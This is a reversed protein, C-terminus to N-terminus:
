VESNVGAVCSEAYERLEGVARKFAPSSNASAKATYADIMDNVSVFCRRDGSFLETYLNVCNSKGYVYKLAKFVSYCDLLRHRIPFVNARDKGVASLFRRRDSFMRDFVEDLASNFADIDLDIDKERFLYKLSRGSSLLRDLKAPFRDTKFALLLNQRPDCGGIVFTYEPRMVDFPRCCKSIEATVSKEFFRVLTGRSLSSSLVYKGTPSRSFCNQRSDIFSLFCRDVINKYYLLRIKPQTM